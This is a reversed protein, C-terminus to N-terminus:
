SICGAVLKIWFKGDASNFQMYRSYVGETRLLQISSGRAVTPLSLDGRVGIADLRASTDGAIVNALEGVVDGMDNSDYDIEFGAFKLILGATTEKPICLMVSWAVDGILSIIGVVGECGPTSTVDGEYIPDEGCIAGLTGIVSEKLVDGHAILESSDTILGQAEM